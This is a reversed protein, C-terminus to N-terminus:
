YPYSSGGCYYYQNPIFNQNSSDGTLILIPLTTYMQTFQRVLPSMIWLQSNYQASAFTPLREFVAYQDANLQAQSCTTVGNSPSGSSLCNAALFSKMQMATQPDKLRVSVQIEWASVNGVPTPNVGAQLTVYRQPLKAPNNVLLQNFQLAYGQSTGSTDLFPSPIMKGNPVVLFHGKILNDLTVVVIGKSNPQQVFKKTCNARFYGVMADFLIDVNYQLQQIDGDRRFLQYQKLSLALIMAIVALVLLVELLTVGKNSQKPM